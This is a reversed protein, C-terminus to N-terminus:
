YTGESEHFEEAHQANGFQNIFFGNNEKALKKAHSSRLSAEVKIMITVFRSCFSLSFLIRFSHWGSVKVIEGGNSTIQNIKEQELEKQVVAVFRLGVLKCMYAESAGTNGSTADYVSTNRGVKGDVIAWLLLAWAFRHKLSRTRTATENKFFIDAKPFGQPQFKILPTHGM